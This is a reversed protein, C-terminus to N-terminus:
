TSVSGSAEGKQMQEGPNDAEFFRLTLYQSEFKHTTNFLAQGDSFVLNQLELLSFTIINAFQKCQPMAIRRIDLTASGGKIL